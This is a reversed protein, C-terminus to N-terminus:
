HGYNNIRYVWNGNETRLYKFGVREVFEKGILNGQKVATTAYGYKQITKNLISIAQKRFWKKHGAKKICAHIEPGNTLIAGVLVGNVYVPTKVWNVFAEVFEDFNIDVRDVVSEHAAKLCEFSQAQHMM